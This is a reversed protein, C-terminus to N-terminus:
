RWERSNLRGFTSILLHPLSRRGEVVRGAGGVVHGKRLAIPCVRSGTGGGRSRFHERDWCFAGSERRRGEGGPPGPSTPPAGNDGEEFLPASPQM